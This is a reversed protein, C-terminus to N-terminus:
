KKPIPPEDIEFDARVDKYQKHMLAQGIGEFAKMAAVAIEHFLDHFLYWVVSFPWWGAWTALKAKYSRFLPETAVEAWAINGERKIFPTTIREQFKDRLRDPIVIGLDTYHVKQTKLWEKRLEGILLRLIRDEIMEPDTTVLLDNYKEELNVPIINRNTISQTRLFSTRVDSLLIEIKVQDLNGFVVLNLEKKLDDPCVDGRIGQSELWETLKRKHIQKRKQGWRPWMWLFSWSLGLVAYVVAMFILYALYTWGWHEVVWPKLNSFCFLLTVFGVLSATANSGKTKELGMCTYLFIIEGAVLLWFWIGGLMIVTYV